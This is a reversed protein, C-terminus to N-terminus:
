FLLFCGVLFNGKLDVRRPRKFFVDSAMELHWHQRNQTNAMRSLKKFFLFLRLNQRGVSETQRLLM